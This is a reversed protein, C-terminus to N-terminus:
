NGITLLLKGSTKRSELDRHAIAVDTLAYPRNVHVKLHGDQYMNFVAYVISTLEQRTRVYDINMPRTIYLSGMQALRGLDFAPVPGSAAGYLVLLGLPRICKLSQEFTTKGVGDYVVDVGKRNTIDMVQEHFNTETYLIVEDAGASRALNAKQATSVTAIVKAGANKAMQTLLSGVGGAAAHVICTDGSKLTFTRHSLAYATLGQSILAASIDLPMDPLVKLLRQAPVVAKEAYSGLLGFWVVAEGVSFETVGEGLAEVHGAGELGPIFPLPAKYKGERYYVDIFNVGSISIRVLVEDKGPIPDPLDSLELVDPGGTANVQVAKM